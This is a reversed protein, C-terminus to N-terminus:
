DQISWSSVPQGMAAKELSSLSLWRRARPRCVRLGLPPPGRAHAWAQCRVHSQLAALGAGGGRAGASVGALGLVRPGPRPREQSRHHTSGSPDGPYRFTTLSFSYGREAMKVWSTPFCGRGHATRRSGKVNEKRQNSSLRICELPLQSNFNSSGLCATASHARLRLPPGACARLLSAPAHSSKRLDRCANRELASCPQRRAAATRGTAPADRVAGSTSPAAAVVSASSSRGQWDETPDTLLSNTPLPKAPAESNHLVARAKKTSKFPNPLFLQKQLEPPRSSVTYGLM